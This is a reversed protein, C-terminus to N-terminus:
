SRKFRESAPAPAQRVPRDSLLLRFTDQGATRQQSTLSLWAPHTPSRLGDSLARIRKPDSGTLRVREAAHDTITAALAAADALHRDKDRSDVLYAAGKLVLAGLQDPILMPVPCGEVELQALRKSAQQGGDIELFHRGGARKGKLAEPGLNDALGLDVVAGDKQFRHAPGASNFSQYQNYGLERLAEITAVFPDPDLHVLVIVDVDHTPRISEIGAARAHAHVMLGGILMWGREPLRGALEFLSPWPPEWGGVPSPVRVVPRVAPDSM